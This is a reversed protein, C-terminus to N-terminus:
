RRLFEACKAWARARHSITNKQAEAIQAFSLSYGEPVFLPDYGFGAGGIPENLLHGKSQGEFIHQKGEPSILILVCVFHAGRNVKPVAAMVKVLKALNAKPDSEPGAYYASEVGPLGKLYDVCLGSDDALVWFDPPVIARLALAKKLGNGVFTGQDEVVEPMGGFSKASVITLETHTTLALAKFESVKHLNGSALAIKL